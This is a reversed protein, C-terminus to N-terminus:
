FWSWFLVFNWDAAIKAACESIFFFIKKVVHKDKVEFNEHDRVGPLKLTSFSILISVWLGNMDSHPQSVWIFLHRWYWQGVVPKKQRIKQCLIEFGRNELPNLQYFIWRWISWIPECKREGGANSRLALKFFSYNKLLQNTKQHEEIECRHGGLDLERKRRNYNIRTKTKEYKSM